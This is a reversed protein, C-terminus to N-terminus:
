EAEEGFKAPFQVDHRFPPWGDSSVDNIPKVREAWTEKLKAGTEGMAGAISELYENSSFMRSTLASMARGGQPLLRYGPYMPRGRENPKAALAILIFFKVVAMHYNDNSDFYSKLCKNRNWLEAVYQMPINAYGLFADPYFLDRREILPRNSFKGTAEEVEIPATMIYQMLDFEDDDLAKAGCLCLMRWAMLAPAGQAYKIVQGPQPRESISILNGALRMMTELGPRWDEQTSELGFHEITNTIPEVAAIYEMAQGFIQDRTVSGGKGKENLSKLTQNVLPILEAKTLRFITKADQPRNRAVLGKVLKQIDVGESAPGALPQAVPVDAPTITVTAAETEVPRRVKLFDSVPNDPRNPTTDIDTLLQRIKDTLARIDERTKWGYIHYAYAQLDFPIDEKKQAILISRDKMAHRVGLEYFVNANRDTLDAIVVHSDNLDQVIAGVLNGRTAVSRRCIYDLGASEVAPKLVQEFIQTWEDETCSATGSFPMIVFCDRPM